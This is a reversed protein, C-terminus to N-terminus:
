IGHSSRSIIASLLIECKKARSNACNRSANSSQCGLVVMRRSTFFFNCGIVLSELVAVSADAEMLLSYGATAGREKNMDVCVSKPVYEGCVSMWWRSEMMSLCVRIYLVSYMLNSYLVSAKPTQYKVKDREHERNGCHRKGTYRYM